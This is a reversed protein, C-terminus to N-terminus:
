AVKKATPNIIPPLLFLQFFGNSLISEEFLSTAKCDKFLNINFDGMIYAHKKSPLLSFIKDVYNNFNTIYGSPPRYVVGVIIETDDNATLEVYLSEIDTNILSADSIKSFNYHNQIYLAVGSGKRKSEACTQYISSYNDHEYLNKNDQQTNTEALGIVSFKHTICKSIATFTDFNTNSGDINLFHLSFTANNKVYQSSYKNFCSVCKSSCNELIASISEIAEVNEPPENDFVFNSESTESHHNLIDYFPNYKQMDKSEYCYKCYIKERFVINPTKNNICTNHYSNQCSNCTFFQKAVGHSLNSKCLQCIKSPLKVNYDQIMM